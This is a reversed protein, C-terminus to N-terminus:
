SAPQPLARLRSFANALQAAWPWNAQLRLVARRAHFSLRGATHLLRYRLAKPECIALEGELCLTQTWATLDQAIMSLELWVANLDFERFPLNELGTQKAARIRDEANARGRHLCEIEVADGQLDTLTAQFRHGDTDTFTLQAGPHPRERRIIVRSGDPWPSLDLREVHTIEAVQAGERQEGDQRIAPRWADEPLSLIAERVGAFLDFGVLFGIGADQAAQCLASAAGASDIRMVIETDLDSVVEVPLQALARDLVDIQAQASHAPAGGPRLVGALAEHSEDLYALLPHFGFGSKFNVAAGEKETHAAILTADIDIVVREPRVGLEWARERARARAGRLADLVGPEGAIRDILRFATSNSAVPGFLPEQDRVARLDSLCDGGDALMVALDRIVRGPDHRGRRERVGALTRSLEGTLGVRDAVEALLAAGAHSVLGEGDPAVDVTFSREGRTVRM